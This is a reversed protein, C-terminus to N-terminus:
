PGTVPRCMFGSGRCTWSCPLTTAARMWIGIRLEASSLFMQALEDVAVNGTKIAWSYNKFGEADPNRGLLLRYCYFIDDKTAPLGGLAAGPRRKWKGFFGPMSM